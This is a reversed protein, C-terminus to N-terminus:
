VGFWRNIANEAEKRTAYQSMWVFGQSDEFIVIAAGIEIGHEIFANEEDADAFFLTASSTTELEDDFPTLDEGEDHLMLEYYYNTARPEGEFKGPSDNMGQYDKPDIM